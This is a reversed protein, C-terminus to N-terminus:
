ICEVVNDCSVWLLLHHTLLGGNDHRGGGSRRIRDDHLVVAGVAAEDGPKGM